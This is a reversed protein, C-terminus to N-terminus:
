KKEKAKGCYRCDYVVSNILVIKVWEHDGSPSKPCERYIADFNAFDDGNWHDGLSQLMEELSAIDTSDLESEDSEYLGTKPNKQWGM